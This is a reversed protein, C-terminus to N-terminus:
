KALKSLSFILIIPVLYAFCVLLVFYLGALFSKLFSGLTDFFSMNSTMLIIVGMLVLNTELIIQSFKLRGKNINNSDKQHIFLLYAIVYLLILPSYQLLIKDVNDKSVSSLFYDISAIWFVFVVFNIHFLNNLTNIKEDM